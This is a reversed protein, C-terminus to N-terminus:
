KSDSQNEYDDSIRTCQNFCEECLQFTDEKTSQYATWVLGCGKIMPLGYGGDNDLCIYKVKFRPTPKKKNSHM